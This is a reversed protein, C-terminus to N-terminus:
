QHEMFKLKPLSPEHREIARVRQSLRHYRGILASLSVDIGFRAIFTQQMRQNVGQGYSQKRTDYNGLLFADQEPTYSRRREATTPKRRIPTLRWLRRVHHKCVEVRQWRGDKAYLMVKPAKGAQKCKQCAM